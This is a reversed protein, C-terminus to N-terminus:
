NNNVARHNKHQLKTATLYQKSTDALHSTLFIMESIVQTNLMLLVNFGTEDSGV